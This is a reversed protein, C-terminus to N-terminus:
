DKALLNSIAFITSGLLICVDSLNFIISSIKDSKVDLRVYDVVYGNSIRDITNSLAGGLFLGLGLKESAKGSQSSKALLTNYLVASLVVSGLKVKEPYNQGLNYMAGYNHSKVFVLKDRCLRSLKRIFYLEEPKTEHAMSLREEMLKKIRHDAACIGGALIFPLQSKLRNKYDKM